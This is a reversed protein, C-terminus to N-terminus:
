ITGQTIPEDAIARLQKVETNKLSLTPLEQAYAIDLPLVFGFIAALWTRGINHGLKLNIEAPPPRPITPICGLVNHGEGLM